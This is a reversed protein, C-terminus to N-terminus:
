FPGRDVGPASLSCASSREAVLELGGKGDPARQRFDKSEFRVVKFLLKGNEDHYPYVADIRCDPEPHDDGVDFGEDRLWDCADKKTGGRERAILDRVGGDEDREYDRWVGRKVDVSLSGRSGYRWDNGGNLEFDPEGLLRQAVAAMHRAFDSNM